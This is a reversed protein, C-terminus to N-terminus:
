LCSSPAQASHAAASVMWQESRGNASLELLDGQITAPFLNSTEQANDFTDKLDGEGSRRWWGDVEEQQDSERGELQGKNKWEEM